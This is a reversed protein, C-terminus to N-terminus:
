EEAEDEEPLREMPPADGPQAPRKGGLSFQASLYGEGLLGLHPGAGLFRVEFNAAVWHAFHYVFGVGVGYLFTGSRVTDTLLTPAPIPNDNSDLVCPNSGNKCNHNPNTPPYAFRYEGAGINASFQLQANGAGLDLYYLGRALVGYAGNAPRGQHTDGSGEIPIYELRGQVAVGIHETILYGVEPYFNLWGVTHVGAHPYDLADARWEFKQSLHYGWGTGWGIGMWFAGQRRRHIGKERVEDQQEHKIGALADEGDGKGGSAGPPPLTTGAPKLIIPNPVEEQGNTAVVNDATDRAECYYQLSEGTAVEAPISAELWGKPSNQMAAVAYTPAGSARFYLLVREAKLTPKVACRIVIEQGEPAEEVAPCYLDAPLVVPLEPEGQVVAPVPPRAPAAEVPPATPAPAPARPPPRRSPKATEGSAETSGAEASGKEFVATLNPTALSPTLQIDARISKALGFYKLASKRDNYGLFYVAGLHVYTRALMKHMLLNAQKAVTVAQLLSDRAVDFKKADISALAKKNLDIIKKVPTDDEQGLVPAASASFVAGILGVQLALLAWRAARSRAVRRRTTTNGM